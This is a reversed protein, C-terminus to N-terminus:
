ERKVKRPLKLIMKMGIATTSNTIAMSIRLKMWFFVNEPRQMPRTPPLLVAARRDPTRTL